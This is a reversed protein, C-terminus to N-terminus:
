SRRFIANLKICFLFIYKVIVFIKAFFEKFYMRENKNKQLIEFIIYKQM